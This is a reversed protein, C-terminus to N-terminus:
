NKIGQFHYDINIMKFTYNFTQNPIDFNGYHNYTDLIVTTDFNEALCHVEIQNGISSVTVTASKISKANISKSSLDSTLTGIYTGTVDNLNLDDSKECSFLFIIVTLSILTKWFKLIQVKM